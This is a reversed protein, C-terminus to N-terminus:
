TSQRKNQMDNNKAKLLWKDKLSALFKKEVKMITNEMKLTRQEKMNVLSENPVM